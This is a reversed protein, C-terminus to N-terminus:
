RRAHRIRGGPGGAAAITSTTGAKEAPLSALVPVLESHTTATLAQQLREDMEEHSIHPLGSKM